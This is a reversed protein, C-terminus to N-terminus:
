QACLLLEKYLEEKLEKISKDIEEKIRIGEADNLWKNKFYKVDKLYDEEGIDGSQYWDLSHLLCFMDWCLESLQKDKLPNLKRADKAQSFGHEGYDPSMWNFIEHCARDNEYGFRGGSM